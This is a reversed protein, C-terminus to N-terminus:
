GHKNSRIAAILIPAVGTLAATVIAASAYNLVALRYAVFLGACGLLFSLVQGFVMSFNDSRVINHQDEIDADIGFKDAILTMTIDLEALRKMVDIVDKDSHSNAMRMIVNEMSSYAIGAHSILDGIGFHGAIAHIADLYEETTM